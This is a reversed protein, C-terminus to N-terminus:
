LLFAIQTGIVRLQNMLDPSMKTDLRNVDASSREIILDRKFQDVNEVLGNEEWNRFIALAEAKAIKPTLIAQGSKFRSGDSALKHRSFKRLMINRYDWRLFSLTLLTNLDLYAVDVAGANNLRYTTIVREIVVKGAIVKWTAIGSFLFANREAWNYRESLSPTKIGKLELTQFPRAPDIQASAAVQAVLASAWTWPSTAGKIPLVVAFKSNRSEGLTTLESYSARKGCLAYGDIQRLAGFRDSCEDDLAQLNQADVYPHVILNYQEDGINTFADAVDPNGAGNVLATIAATIGAPMEDEYLDFRLDIENTFEGKHKSELNIQEATTGDIAAILPLTEILNIETVLAAVIEASTMAATIGVSVQEGGIYFNLLSAKSATGAFLISGTAKVGAAKDDLAIAELRITKNNNLFSECMESLVSGKGFFEVAKDASAIFHPIQTAKSGSALKNGILLVKYEMVSSSQVAGSGDIEVYAFPVRANGPVENFSVSM